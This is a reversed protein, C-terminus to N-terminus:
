CLKVDRIKVPTPGANVVHIVGYAVEGPWEGLDINDVRVGSAARSYWGAIGVGSLVLVLGVPVLHRINMPIGYHAVCCSGRVTRGLCSSSDPHGRRWPGAPSSM